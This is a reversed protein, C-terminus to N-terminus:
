LFPTPSILKFVQTEDTHCDM